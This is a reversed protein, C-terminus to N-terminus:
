NSDLYYGCLMWFVDVCLVYLLFFRGSNSMRICYNLILIDKVTTNILMVSKQQEHYNANFIESIINKYM